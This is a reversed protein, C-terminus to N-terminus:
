AKPGSAWTPKRARRVVMWIIALLLLVAAAFAGGFLWLTTNLISTSDMEVALALPAGALRDTLSQEWTLINGREVSGNSGDPRKVNHFEIRSPLHLRFAVREGGTWGAPSVQAAAPAGPAPAGVTQEYRVSDEDVPAFTVRSWNLMGCQAMQRVDDVLVTVRVYRRNSRTWPRSVSEVRCRVSEYVSRVDDRTVGSSASGDFTVGRLAGIAYLSGDIAISAHGDIDLYVQEEYEYKPSGFAGCSASLVIAVAAGTARARWAFM